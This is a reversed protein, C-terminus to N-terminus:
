HHADSSRSLTPWRHHRRDPERSIMFSFFTALAESSHRRQGWKVSASTPAWCLRASSFSVRLIPAGTRHRDERGGGGLIFLAGVAPNSASTPLLVVWWRTYGSLKRSSASFTLMTRTGKLVVSRCHTILAVVVPVMEWYTGEPRRSSPCQKDRQKGHSPRQAGRGATGGGSCGGGWAEEQLASGWDEPRRWVRRSKKTGRRGDGRHVRLEPRGRGRSKGGRRISRGAKSGWIGQFGRPLPLGAPFSVARTLESGASM